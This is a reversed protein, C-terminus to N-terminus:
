VLTRNRLRQLVRQFYDPLPASFAMVERTRPHVFRINAAHLLQGDLKFEEKKAGYTKDGVVSHGIYSMHVRIQHTRGTQLKCQVFTYRGFRELVRYNTVAERSNKATVCMKKRDNPNRGIPADVCGEEARINGNVLALYERSLSRDKLQASLFEHALDNKAVVLLGTTDKDIRHVIGPRMVGNIGSLSGKCHSMLANVLTGSYNGAAPHVVMGQPKNIVLLDADEYVIDLPIEEAQVELPQADPICVEVTEGEQVRYKKNRVTGDTSVHGQEILRVAHSRTMEALAQGLYSDLRMGNCDESVTLKQKQM